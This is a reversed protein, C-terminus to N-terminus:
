CCLQKLTIVTVTIVGRIKVRAICVKHEKFVLENRRDNIGNTEEKLALTADRFV